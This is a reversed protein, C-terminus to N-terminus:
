CSWWGDGVVAVVVVVVAVAVGIHDTEFDHRDQHQDADAVQHDGGSVLVGIEHGHDVVWLYQEYRNM